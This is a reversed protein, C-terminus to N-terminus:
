HPAHKPAQAGEETSRPPSFPPFPQRTIFSSRPLVAGGGALLVQCSHWVCLLQARGLAGTGRDRKGAGM